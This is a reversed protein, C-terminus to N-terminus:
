VKNFKVLFKNVKRLVRKANEFTLQEMADEYPLWIHGIHERSLKVKKQITEAVFFIVEKYVIIDGRKFFYRIREEFNPLFELNDIRTEEFIERRATQKPVEGEEIHGKVFDWHGGGYHVLLYIPENNERRFIVAGASLERPM